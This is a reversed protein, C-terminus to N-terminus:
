DIPVVFVPHPSRRVFDHIENRSDHDHRVLGLAILAPHTTPHEPTIPLEDAEYRIMLDYTFGHEESARQLGSHLRAYTQALAGELDEPRFEADPQLSNMIERFNRYTSKEVLLLLELRGNPQVLGTAWRAMKTAAANERTLIMRVHNSPDRGVADPRRIFITPIKSRAAIVEMVTGASDEGLSEFDRRYPCPLMLLDADFSEAATLIQEYDDKITADADVVTAGTSVRQALQAASGDGSELYGVECALRDQLQKSFLALPHDQTSGDTAVLIKKPRLQSIDIGACVFARGCLDMSHSLESDVNRQTPDPM